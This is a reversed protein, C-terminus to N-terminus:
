GALIAGSGSVSKNVTAPDGSYLILGSGTVSADLSGTADVALRGSGSVVATVDRATLGQLQVDGSGGLSAELTTVSGAATLVGSGPVGVTLRRGHLGDLVLVGSGSLTVSDLAPVGIEVRMPRRTSFGASQGIVLTDGHVETTILPLLNRDGHLVVTQRGGVHVTVSNAGALDVRQFPAPHRTAAAAVGSGEVVTSRSTRQSSDHRVLLVVSVVAVVVAAALTLWYRVPIHPRHASTPAVAMTGGERAVTARVPRGAM